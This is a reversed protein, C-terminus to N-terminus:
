VLTLTIDGASVVPVKDLDVAVSDLTATSTGIKIEVLQAWAGLATVPGAFRLAYITSGIRARTGGDAGAFAAIIAAQVQAEADSPVATSDVISVAFLIPLADPIEYVVSYSPYPPSYGPSMDLVTRTTNGAYYPVGPAKKRWIAEAVAQPDGGVAAVYLAHAPITIGGVTVPSGTDNSRAYGDLVNPVELISGLIAPLSGVANKAVSAARRQEFAVRLETDVGLVGDALNTISDWGNITRYIRNLSGAPCAIPGNVTSAFQLVVSGGGPISGGGTCVYVTGDTARAQAGTPIILGVAGSCTAAVVTPRSPLRTIFYIRAIGDQMRGDAFAPDVQQTYRLFTADKDGVIATFSGALQGQPTPNTSSGGSTGLNLRGGFAANLDANVGALVEGEAPITFGTPTWTPRPVSSTGSM